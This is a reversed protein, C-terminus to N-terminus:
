HAHHETEAADATITGEVYQAFGMRWGGMSKTDHGVVPTTYLISRIGYLKIFEQMINFVLMSIDDTELFSGVPQAIM